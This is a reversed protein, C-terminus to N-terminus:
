GKWIPPTGTQSYRNSESVIGYLYLANIFPMLYFLLMTLLCGAGPNAYSPAVVETLAMTLKQQDPLDAWPTLGTRVAKGCFHCNVETPGFRRYGHGLSNNCYPCVKYHYTVKM